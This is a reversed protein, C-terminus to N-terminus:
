RRRVSRQNMNSVRPKAQAGNNAQVGNATYGSPSKTAPRNAQVMPRPAEGSGVSGNSGSVADGKSKPITTLWSDETSPNELVETLRKHYLALARTAHGRPGIPWKHSKNDDIHKLLFDIAKEVRETQLQDDGVTFMLWELMHGTTQVKREDKPDNGRAEYWNTSFSGDPNQLKWTFDIFENVFKAARLYQGELPQGQLVRQKIAFTYGMLRHTGGCAAGVIPQALEEQILKQISWVKGDNSRWVKNSDVYYSLGILKFTLESRERCTAMEYYVLDQVTFKRDGIQIPYDPPVQCQALISLFQGAHGQVGGGVNPVFSNGRPTFIRQTKCLGNHCMWGIANVRGKPGVMEYDSGFALLAHMVAWPSREATTEPHTLYYDLCNQVRELRARQEPTGNFEQSGSIAKKSLKSNKAGSYAEDNAIAERNSDLADSNGLADPVEPSADENASGWEGYPVPKQANEADVGQLSSDSQAIRSPADEQALYEDMDQEPSKLERKKPVRTASREEELNGSDRTALNPSTSTPSTPTRSPNLILPAPNKSNATEGNAEHVFEKSTTFKPPESVADGIEISGIGVGGIELGGIEIASIEQENIEAGLVESNEDTQALVQGVVHGALVQPWNLPQMGASGIALVPHISEHQYDAVLLTRIWASATAVGSFKGAVVSKPRGTEQARVAPLPLSSLAASEKNGGERLMNVPPEDPTQALLEANPVPFLSALVLARLFVSRPNPM